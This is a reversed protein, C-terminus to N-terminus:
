NRKINFLSYFNDRTVEAVEEISVGKLKAVCEAVHTVFAPQNEKGRHPVPALWPSDTEILLRELPVHKVVDRLEEASAFTVIGSISIYFGLDLAKEAMDLSETFCHMVGRCKEAHGERLMDITDARADRTHIILPKNVENAIEIHRAFSERQTAIHEKDYFYDLGTEGVAVVDSRACLSALESESFGHKAVYLPHVGCSFSVDGHKGVIKQMQAFDDLAVGICLMHEIQAARADALVKAIGHEETSKLKDLHCHSDVFM